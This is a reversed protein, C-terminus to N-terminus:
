RVKKQTQRGSPKTTFELAAGKLKDTWTSVVYRRNSQRLEEVTQDMQEFLRANEIAIAVQNAMGQLTAVDDSNFEAERISQVDLAGITRDGIILPLVVESRTQPLLPNYSLSREEGVDLAIQAEKSAIATSILSNDGLPVRYRRTKMIEGASGTADKLQAWRDDAVLFIAVFYYGFTNAILNVAQEILLDV